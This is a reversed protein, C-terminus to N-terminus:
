LQLTSRLAILLQNERGGHCSDPPTGPGAVRGVASVAEMYKLADWLSLYFAPTVSEYATKPLPDPPPPLPTGAVYVSLLAM